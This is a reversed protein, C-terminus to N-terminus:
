RDADMESEQSELLSCGELRRVLGSWRLWQERAEYETDFRVEISRTSLVRLEEEKFWCEGRLMHRKTLM